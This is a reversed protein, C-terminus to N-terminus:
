EPQLELFNSTFRPWEGDTRAFGVYRPGKSVIGTFASRHFYDHAGDQYQEWEDESAFMDPKEGPKCMWRLDDAYPMNTNMGFAFLAQELTTDSMGFKKVAPHQDIDSQSVTWSIMYKEKRKRTLM